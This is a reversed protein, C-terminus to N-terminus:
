ADEFAGPLARRARAPLEPALAQEECFALLRAEDALMFDLVGGLFAPEGAAAKLHAPATGSERCFRDLLVEDGAIHALANLAIVMARDPTM